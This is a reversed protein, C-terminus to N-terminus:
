TAETYDDVLLHSTTGNTSGISFKFKGIDYGDRLYDYLLPDYLTWSIIALSISVQDVKRPSPTFVSSPRGYDKNSADILTEIARMEMSCFKSNVDGEIDSQLLQHRDKKGILNGEWYLM